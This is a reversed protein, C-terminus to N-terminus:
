KPTREYVVDYDDPVNVTDWKFSKIKRYLPAPANQQFWAASCYPYQTAETVIGHKVANNHAYNLRAYYSNDYTLMTDRCQFWVRRGPKNDLENLMRATQSHVRQVLAKLEKGQGTEPSLAICHYHNSFVAWAQPRWKYSILTNLMAEQLLALREDDTFYHQKYLTSATLFYAHNPEYAHVPSHHWVSPSQTDDPLNPVEHNEPM